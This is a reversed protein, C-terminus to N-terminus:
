STIIILNKPCEPLYISNHLTIEKEKGAENKLWFKMSGVGIVTSTRGFGRIGINISKNIKGIFPTMDNCVHHTAWNDTGFEPKTPFFNTVNDLDRPAEENALITDIVLKVNPQMKFVEAVFFYVEDEPM